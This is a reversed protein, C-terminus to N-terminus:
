EDDEIEDGIKLEEESEKLSSLDEGDQGLAAEDAMGEDSETSEESRQSKRAARQEKKRAKTAKVKAKDKKPNDFLGRKIKDQEVDGQKAIEKFGFDIKKSDFKRQQVTMLFCQVEGDGNDSLRSAKKLNLKFTDDEINWSIESSRVDVCETQMKQVNDEFLRFAHGVIKIKKRPTRSTRVLIYQSVSTSIKGRFKRPYTEDVLTIKTKDLIVLPIGNAEAEALEACAKAARYNGKLEAESLEYSYPQKKPTSVDKNKDKDDKTSDDQLKTDKNKDKDTDTALQKTDGATQDPTPGTDNTSAAPVNKKPAAYNKKRSCSTSVLTLVLLLTLINSM